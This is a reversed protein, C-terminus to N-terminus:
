MVTMKKIYHSGNLDLRKAVKFSIITKKDTIVTIRM